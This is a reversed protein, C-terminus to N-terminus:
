PLSFSFVLHDSGIGVGGCVGCFSWNGDSRGGEYAPHISYEMKVEVLVLGRKRLHKYTLYQVRGTNDECVM